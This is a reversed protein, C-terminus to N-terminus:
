AKFSKLTQQSQAMGNRSNSSDNRGTNLEQKM